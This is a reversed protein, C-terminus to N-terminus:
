GTGIALERDLGHRAGLAAGAHYQVQLGLGLLKGVTEAQAGQHAAVGIVDGERHAHVLLARGRQFVLVDVLSLRQPGTRPRLNYPRRTNMMSSASCNRGNYRRKKLPTMSEFSRGNFTDRSNSCCSWSTSAMRLASVRRASSSSALSALSSGSFYGCNQRSNPRASLSPSPSSGPLRSRRSGSSRKALLLEAPLSSLTLRASYTARIRGPCSRM